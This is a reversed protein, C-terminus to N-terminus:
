IKMFQKLSLFCGLLGVLMSTFLAELMFLPSLFRINLVSMSINNGNDVSSSILVFLVFLSTLGIIGGLAGLILGEIYFPIAIFSDSAGVLRMIEVEERRSYIVLRITNAVIFVAAMFFLGGMAFGSLKLLKFINTFRGLWIQGYEVEAVWVYSQLRQALDEIKAIQQSSAMMKVEFADPLPNETLNDLLSSQRRMQLRLTELAESKPIYRVEKVGYLGKIKMEKEKITAADLDPQLYVMVRIGKQWSDMLSTVNSFFLTFATVILVSLAITIVTIMNLFRNELIDQIARRYHRTM